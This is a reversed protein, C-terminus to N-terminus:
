GITKEANCSNCKLITIRNKRIIETNGSGCKIASCLVYKDIYKGIVTEIQKQTYINNIMLINDKGCISSSAQLENDIFLKVSNKDRKFTDCLKEFNIISTKKNEIVLLPRDTSFKKNNSKDVELKDYLRKLCFDITYLEEM